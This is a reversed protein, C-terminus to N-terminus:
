ALPFLTFPDKGRWGPKLRGSLRISVNCINLIGETPCNTECPDLLDCKMLKTVCKAAPEGICSYRQGHDLFQRSMRRYRHRASIGM